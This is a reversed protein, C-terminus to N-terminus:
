YVIRFRQELEDYDANIYKKTNETAEITYLQGLKILYKAIGMSSYQRQVFSYLAHEKSDHAFRRLATKSVVKNRDGYKIIYSKETEKIVEWERLLLKVDESPRESHTNIGYRYLKKITSM